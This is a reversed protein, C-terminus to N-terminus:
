ILLGKKVVGIDWGGGGGKGGGVWHNEPTVKLTSGSPDAVVKWFFHLQVEATQAKTTVRIVEGDQPILPPVLSKCFHNYTTDSRLTPCVSFFEDRETFIDFSCPLVLAKIHTRVACVFVSHATCM